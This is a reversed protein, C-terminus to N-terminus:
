LEGLFGYTGVLSVFRAGTLVRVSVARKRAQSFLVM